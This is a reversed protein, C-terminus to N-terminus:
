KQEGLLISSLNRTLDAISGDNSIVFDCIAGEVCSETAHDDSSLSIDGRSGRRIFRIERPAQILVFRFGLNRLYDCESARMDDCVIVRRGIRNEAYEINDLAHTFAEFIVNPNIRRLHSALDNLLMGDQSFFNDLPTGAIKYVAAQAEYIPQALKIRHFSINSESCLLELCGAATSKGAGPLGCLAIRTEENIQKNMRKNKSRLQM